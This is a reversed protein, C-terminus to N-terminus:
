QPGARVGQEWRAMNPLVGVRVLYHCVFALWTATCTESYLTSIFPFDSWTEMPSFTSEVTDV